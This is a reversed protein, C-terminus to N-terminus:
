VNVHNCKKLETGCNICFRNDENIVYSVGCHICYQIAGYEINFFHNCVICQKYSDDNVSECFICLWM